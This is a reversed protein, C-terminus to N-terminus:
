RRVIVTTDMETSSVRGYNQHIIYRIKTKRGLTDYYIHKFFSRVNGDMMFADSKKYISKEILRNHANYTKATTYGGLAIGTRFCPYIHHRYVVKEKLSDINEKRKRDQVSLIPRSFRCSITGMVLAILLFYRKM